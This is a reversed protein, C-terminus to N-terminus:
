NSLLTISIMSARNYGHVTDEYKYCLFTGNKRIHCGYFHFWFWCLLDLFIWIVMYIIMVIFFLWLLFILVFEMFLFFMSVFLFTVIVSRSNLRFINWDIWYVLDSGWFLFFGFSIFVFRVFCISMSMLRFYFSFWPCWM